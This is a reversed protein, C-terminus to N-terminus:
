KLLIKMAKELDGREHVLVREIDIDSFKSLNYTTKAQKILWKLQEDDPINKNDNENEVKRLLYPNNLEKLNNINSNEEEVENSYNIYKFSKWIDRFYNFGKSVLKKISNEDKKIKNIKNNNLLDLKIGISLLRKDLEKIQVITRIKLYCHKHMKGFDKECKDCILKNCDKCYYIIKFMKIVNCINCGLNFTDNNNYKRDKNFDKIIKKNFNNNSDNNEVKNISSDNNIDDKDINNENFNNNIPPFSFQIPKLDDSINNKDENNLTNKNDDNKNINKKANKIEKEEKIYKEKNDTYTRNIDGFIEKYNNKDNKKSTDIINIIKTKQEFYAKKFNNFDDSNNIYYKNSDFNNHYYLQFSKILEEKIKFISFIIQLFDEYNLSVEINKEFENYKILVNM